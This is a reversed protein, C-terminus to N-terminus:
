AVGRAGRRQLLRGGFVLGLGLLVLTGIAAGTRPLTTVPSDAGGVEATVAAADDNNDTRSEAGTSSVHAGNTVETDQTVTMETLLQIESTSRGAALPANWVCTVLQAVAGCDWDEGTASVFRLREDLEDTVTIPGADDGPGDNTVVLRWDVVALTGDVRVDGVTKLVTLDIAPFEVPM